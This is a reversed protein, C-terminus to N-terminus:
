KQVPRSPTATPTASTSSNSSERRPPLPVNAIMINELKVDAHVISRAHLYALGHLLQRLVEIIEKEKFVKFKTKLNFLSDEAFEMVINIEEESAYVRYMKILNEHNVYAMIKIERLLNTM